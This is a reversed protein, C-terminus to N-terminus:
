SGEFFAITAGLGAVTPGLPAVAGGDQTGLTILGNSLGAIVPNLVPNVFAFSQSQKEAEQLYSTGESTFEGCLGNLENILPSTASSAGTQAGVISIVSGVDSCILPLGLTNGFAFMQLLPTIIAASPPPPPNTGSAAGADTSPLAAILVTGLALAALASRLALTRTRHIRPTVATHLM